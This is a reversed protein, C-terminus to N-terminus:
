GDDSGTSAVRESPSPNEMNRSGQLVEVRTMTLKSTRFVIYVVYAQLRILTVQRM